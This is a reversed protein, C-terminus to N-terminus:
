VMENRRGSHKTLFTIKRFMRICLIRFITRTLSLFIKKTKPWCQNTALFVTDTVMISNVVNLSCVYFIFNTLEVISDRFLAFRLAFINQSISGLILASWDLYPTNTNTTQICSNRRENIYCLTSACVYMMWNETCVSYM